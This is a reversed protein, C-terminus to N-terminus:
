IEVVIPKNIPSYAENNVSANVFFPNRQAYVDGHAYKVGYGEHIHGFVHLKLEPLQDVVTRLDECGAMDGWLMTKDLIGYPPGHTILVNTDLPIKDWMARIEPGRDKMFAWKYFTPTWPSGYFKLGGYRVEQDKLYTIGYSNLLAAGDVPHEQLVFDHNGAVVIIKKYDDRISGMWRAFTELEEMNGYMCMDGAHILVDGPPLILKKFMRNHTDSICILKM